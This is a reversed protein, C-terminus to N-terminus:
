SFGFGKSFIRGSVIRIITITKLERENTTEEM